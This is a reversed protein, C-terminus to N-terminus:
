VYLCVRERCSASGIEWQRDPFRCHPREDLPHLRDDALPTQRPQARRRPGHGFVIPAHASLRTRRAAVGAGLALAVTPDAVNTAPAAPAALYSSRTYPFPTYTRPPRPPRPIM